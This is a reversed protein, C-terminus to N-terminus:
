HRYDCRPADPSVSFTIVAGSVTFDDTLHLRVAGDYVQLTGSIPTHALTRTTGSGTPTEDVVQTGYVTDFYTKLVSRVYAWTIRKTTTVSTDEIVMEDDTAPTTLETLDPIKASPM